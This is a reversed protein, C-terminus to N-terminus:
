AVFSVNHSSPYNKKVTLLLRILITNAINDIVQAKTSCIENLKLSFTIKM